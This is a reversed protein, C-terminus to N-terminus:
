SYSVGSAASARLPAPDARAIEGLISWKRDALQALVGDVYAELATEARIHRRLALRSAPSVARAAATAAADM